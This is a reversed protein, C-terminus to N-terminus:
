KTGGHVDRDLIEVPAGVPLHGILANLGYKPAQVSPIHLKRVLQDIRRLGSFALLEPARRGNKDVSAIGERVKVLREPQAAAHILGFVSQLSGGSLSLQLTQELSLRWRTGM